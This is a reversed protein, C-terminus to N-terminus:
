RSALRWASILLVSFVIWEALRQLIGRWQELSSELMLIFLMLWVTALVVWLVRMLVTIKPTLSLLALGLATLLYTLLAILNHITQSVSGEAPCGIDCPAFASGIYAIPQLIILWYGVRSAGNVPVVKAAAFVLSGSLLGFPVFGLWGIVQAYPTGTANLESIFQSFHSYGPKLAAGGFLMILYSVIVAIILWRITM